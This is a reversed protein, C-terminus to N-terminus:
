ELWFPLIEHASSAAGARADDCSLDLHTSREGSSASIGSLSGQPGRNAGLLDERM